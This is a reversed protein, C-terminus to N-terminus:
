KWLRHCVIDLNCDLIRGAKLLERTLVIVYSGGYDGMTSMHVSFSSVIEWVGEGQNVAASVDITAVRDTSCVIYSGREGNYGGYDLTL